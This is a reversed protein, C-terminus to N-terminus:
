NVPLTFKFISGQGPVSEVWIKGQHRNIIESCLYLGIGFGAIKETEKTEARYHPTFLKDMDKKSIGMGQDLISVTLINEEKTCTVEITKDKSSYKAANSLLNVLVQEIKDRDANAIVRDCHAVTINHSSTIFMTEEIVERILEDMAFEQKNLHIKGAEAGSLNLLSNIMNLMKKVQKEAKSLAGMTFSDKQKKAWNNLMQIYAKLATLPTKLEHSVMGIFKSRRLDNQKKETIDVVIGSIYSNKEDTTSFGGTISLWRHKKEGPIRVPCEVYLNSRDKIANEVTILFLGSDKDAVKSLADEFSMEEEPLFGFLIKTRSSPLFKRTAADMVWIGVNASDLAMKAIELEPFKENTDFDHQNITAKDTM